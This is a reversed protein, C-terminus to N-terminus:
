YSKFIDKIEKKDVANNEKRREIDALAKRFAEEKFVVSKNQADLYEQKRESSWEGGTLSKQWIYWGLGILCILVVFFIFRHIKQWFFGLAPVLQTSSINIKKFDLQM